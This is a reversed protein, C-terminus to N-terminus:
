IIVHCLLLSSTAVTSLLPITVAIDGPWAVMVTVVSSPFLVAWHMTVTTMGTVPTLMSLFMVSAMFVEWVKNGTIVGKSAVLLATVHTLSLGLTAVTFLEPVTVAMDGPSATILTIVCSPPLAAAQITLTIIGTVPTDIFLGSANKDIPLVSVNVAVTLGVLAVLWFTNQRLLLGLTAITFLLPLTVM